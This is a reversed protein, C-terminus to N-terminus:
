YNIKSEPQPAEGGIKAGQSAMDALKNALDMGSNALDLGKDLLGMGIPLAGLIASIPDMTMRWMSQPPENRRIDIHNIIVTPNRYKQCPL